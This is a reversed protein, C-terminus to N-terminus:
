KIKKYEYAPGDAATTGFLITKPRTQFNELSTPNTFKIMGFRMSDRTETIKISYNGQAQIKNGVYRVYTSDSNLIYKDGNGPALDGSKGWGTHVRLLEWTGFVNTLAPKIKNSPSNDESKKCAIITVVLAALLFKRKM